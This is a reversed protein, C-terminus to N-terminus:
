EEKKLLVFLIKCFGQVQSFVLLLLTSCSWKCIRNNTFELIIENEVPQAGFHSINVFKKQWYVYIRSKTNLLFTFVKKITQASYNIVIAPLENDKRSRILSSLSIRRNKSIKVESSFITSYRSTISYVCPLNMKIQCLFM